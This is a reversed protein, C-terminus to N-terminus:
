CHVIENYRRVYEIFDPDRKSKIRYSEEKEKYYKTELM